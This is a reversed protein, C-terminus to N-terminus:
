IVGGKNLRTDGCHIHVLEFEESLEAGPVLQHVPDLSINKYIFALAVRDGPQLEKRCRGCQRSTVHPRMDEPRPFNLSM